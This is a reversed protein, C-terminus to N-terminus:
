IIEYMPCFKVVQWSLNSYSNSIKSCIYDASRKSRRATHSAQWIKWDMGSLWDTFWDLGAPDVLWSMLGPSSSQFKWAKIRWALLIYQPPSRRWQGGCAAVARWLGGCSAFCEPGPIRRFRHFDMFIYLFRHFDIFILSFRRFDIFILSSLFFREFYVYM